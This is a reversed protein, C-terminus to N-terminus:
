KCTMNINKNNLYKLICILFPSKLSMNITLYHGQINKYHCLYTYIHACQIVQLHSITVILAIISLCKIFLRLSYLIDNVIMASYRILINDFM